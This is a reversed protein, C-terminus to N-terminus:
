HLTKVFIALVSAEGAESALAGNRQWRVGTTLKSYAFKRTNTTSDWGCPGRGKLDMQFVFM